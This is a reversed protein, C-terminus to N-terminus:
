CRWPLASLSWSKAEQGYGYLCVTERSLVMEQIVWCRVFWDSAFLGTLAGGFEEPPEKKQIQYERFWAQFTLHSQDAPIGDPPKIVPANGFWALALFGDEPKKGASPAGIYGIAGRAQWYIQGM